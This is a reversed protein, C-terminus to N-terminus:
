HVKSSNAEKKMNLNVGHVLCWLHGMEKNDRGFM